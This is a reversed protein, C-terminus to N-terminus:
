IEKHRMPRRLQHPTINRLSPRLLQHEMWAFRHYYGLKRFVIILGALVRNLPSCMHPNTYVETKELQCSGITYNAQGVPSLPRIEPNITNKITVYTM